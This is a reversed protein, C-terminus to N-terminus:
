TQVVPRLFGLDALESVIRRNVRGPTPDSAVLPALVERAQREACGLLERQAPSLHADRVDVELTESATM